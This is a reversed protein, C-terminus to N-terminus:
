GKFFERTKLSLYFLHSSFASLDELEKDIDYYPSWKSLFIPARMM